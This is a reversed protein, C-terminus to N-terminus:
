RLPRQKNFFLIANSTEAGRLHPVSRETEGIYKAIVTSLDTQLDLGLEVTIIRRGNDQRHRVARRVADSPRASRPKKGSVGDCLCPRPVEHNCIETAGAITRLVSTVEDLAIKAGVCGARTRHLQCADQLERPSVGENGGRTALQRATAAAQSIKGLSLPFTALSSLDIHWRRRAPSSWVLAERTTCRPEPMHMVVVGRRSLM